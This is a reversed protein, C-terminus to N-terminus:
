HAAAHRASWRVASELRDNGWFLEGAVVFSPAGFVGITMARETNQRLREKTADLHAAALVTAPDPVLAELCSRVVDPQSIDLDRAFNATYVNRVFAPLWDAGDACCAIRAARLSSRPFVSPKTLPLGLESCIRELDRWMYRGKAPYLNFPSDKWDQARFIPGLLFPRWVVTSGHRNAVDEIRMAAPYSYTSAFEFWFEIPHSSM